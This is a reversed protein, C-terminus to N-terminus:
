RAPARSGRSASRSRSAWAPATASGTAASTPASARRAPASRSQHLRPGVAHGPGGLRGAPRGEQHRAPRDAPRRHVQGDARRVQQGGRAIRRLEDAHDRRRLHQPIVSFTGDKQINAHVRDNIFRADREDEYEAGWLTKLLSALGMKSGVDEVGGALAGFVASVSKLGRSRIPQSWSPSTWRCAPVYYHVSPDEKVQGDAAWEILGKVLKKCSGCGTGARTAEMVMKLSRKGGEVSKRIQGKSVGNCDCIQRTDPMELMTTETSPAGIDFLLSLREEPLPTGRDFAQMLDAAKSLDGLLVRRDAQRRPHDAEQVDGRKPESFKM